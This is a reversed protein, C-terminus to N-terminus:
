SISNALFYMFYNDKLNFTDNGLAYHEMSLPKEYWMLCRRNCGFALVCAKHSKEIINVYKMTLTLGAMDNIGAGGM